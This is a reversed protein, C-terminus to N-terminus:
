DRQGAAEKYILGLEFGDLRLVMEKMTMYDFNTEIVKVVTENQSQIKGLIFALVYTQDDFHHRMEQGYRTDDKTFVTYGMTM